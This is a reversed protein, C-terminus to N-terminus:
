KEEYLLSFRQIPSRRGSKCAMIKAEDKGTTKKLKVRGYVCVIKTELRKIPFDPDTERKILRKKPTM